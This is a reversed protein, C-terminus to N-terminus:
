GIIRATETQFFTRNPIGTLSDYHASHWLSQSQTGLQKLLESQENGLLDSALKQRSLALQMIAVAALDKLLSLQLSSLYRPKHDIVELTATAHGDIILSVGAYFRIFPPGVVLPNSAFRMDASADPFIFDKNHRNTHNCFAAEQLTCGGEM